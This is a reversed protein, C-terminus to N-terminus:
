EKGRSNLNSYIGNCVNSSHGGQAQFLPEVGAVFEIDIFRIPLNM